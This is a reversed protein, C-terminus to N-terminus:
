RHAPSPPPRRALGFGLALSPLPRRPEALAPPRPERHPARPRIGGSMATAILLEARELGGLALAALAGIPFALPLAVWGGALLAGLGDPHGAFLAGEVLEQACFIGLLALAFGGARLEFCPERAELRGSRPAIAARVLGAALIALAIVVLAPVFRTLYGHGTDALAHAADGGNTLLYSLQHLALAGLALVGAARAAVTWAFPVM